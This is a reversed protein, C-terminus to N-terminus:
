HPLQAPCMRTIIKAFFIYALLDGQHAPNQAPTVMAPNNKDIQTIAASYGLHNKVRLDVRLYMGLCMLQATLPDQRYAAPDFGSRAIHGVRFKGGARYLDQNIFQANEVAALRRGKGEIFVDLDGIIEPQLVAIEIQTARFHGGVQDHAM